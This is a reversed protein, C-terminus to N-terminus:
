IKLGEKIAKLKRRREEGGWKSEDEFLVNHGVVLLTNIDIGRYYQRILDM